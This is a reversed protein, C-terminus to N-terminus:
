RAISDVFRSLVDYSVPGAVPYRRVMKTIIMTPTGNIREALALQIDQNVATNVEPSTALKRLKAADAPSLIRCAAGIVDGSRTWSEQTRFLEDCIESYHGIKEAACAIRAAELSHPHVNTLPFERRILYVKGKKVYNEILAQLTQDHFVKCAPCEYDSFLEIKVPAQPNGLARGMSFAAPVRPQAAAMGAVALFLLAIKQMM